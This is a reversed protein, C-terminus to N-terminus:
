IRTVVRFLFSGVKDFYGVSTVRGQIRGSYGKQKFFSPLQLYRCDSM